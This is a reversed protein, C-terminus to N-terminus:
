ASGENLWRRVEAIGVSGLNVVKRLRPLAERVAEVTRLDESRLANKTRCSLQELPDGTALENARREAHRVANKAQQRCVGYRRGLDAYKAGAKHAALIEALREDTWHNRAM